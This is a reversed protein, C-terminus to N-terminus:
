SLNSFKRVLWEATLLGIITLLAWWQTWVLVEIRPPPELTVTKGKVDDPLDVLNEERYFKGNTQDALKRLAEENFNGAALEHDPPLIVRFDLSSGDGISESLKLNYNGQRNKTITALYMGPQNEVAEFFIPENRDEDQKGAADVRELTAPIRERELPRFDPTFLRAYVKTPKGQVADGDLMMQSKGGLLHPLGVQYVVQGWFRGFYKDAENFRWRWTEDSAVFMVLGRGYYHRSILPMPRKKNKVQSVSDEIELKPHDLLSVAGPKLRTVPYNWYWGPLKRWISENEEPLDSLSIVADRKGVDSPRPVFEVPKKNDEIPFKKADFEVPLVDAVPKNLYSAPANQRGAIMILGGGEEVFDKIWKLQDGKFWGADVDGLVLLDYAFLEKRERPFEAIFPPGSKMTKPDGNVLLFRPDVRRDREFARMLFKFEWRPSNEIYLVKVKSEVVRVYKSIKNGDDRGGVLRISAELKQKGSTADRKEPVFTLTESVDEGPKAKVRRTAVTRGGLTVNLEIEGETIGQCRWRFPVRVTDEIFLTDQVAVDKLQLVTTNGGGVAYVHVPLKLRACERGIDELPITSANDRGDTVLVIAAPLDNDDRQLLEGISGSIATQTETAPLNAEWGREAGRLQAGFLYEQLPGKSALRDRLKLKSNQFAAMVIEARTPEDSPLKDYDESKLANKFSDPPFVDRVIGVRKRDDDTVRPDRQSMSQTNDVLIAIPRTKESNGQSVIVPKRLLLIIGAIALGRFLAMVVRQIVHLKMSERFYVASVAILGLVILSYAAWAPLSGRFVLEGLLPQLPHAFTYTM